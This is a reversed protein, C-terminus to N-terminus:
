RVLTMNQDVEDLSGNEGVDYLMDAGTMNLTTGSLSVRWHWTTGPWADPAVVCEDEDLSWTGLTTDPQAGSRTHVYVWRHDDGIRVTLKAGNALLDVRTAPAAKTVYEAKTATWNGKIENPKPGVVKDKGCGAGFSLLIALIVPAGYTAGKM